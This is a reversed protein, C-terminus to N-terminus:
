LTQLYTCVQADTLNLNALEITKVTELHRFVQGLVFIFFIKSTSALYWTKLDELTLYTGDGPGIEEVSLGFDTVIDAKTFLGDAWGLLAMNFAEVAIKCEVTGGQDDCTGRVREYLLGM